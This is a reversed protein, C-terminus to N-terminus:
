RGGRVQGKRLRGAWSGAVERVMTRAGRAGAEEVRPLVVLATVLRWVFAVLFVVKYNVITWPGIQAHLHRLPEAIAGGVVPAVGAVLGVIVSYAALYISKNERPFLGLLLNFNALELGSWFAGAVFGNIVLWRWSSPEALVWPVPFFALALAAVRLVPRNGYRDLLRGWVASFLAVAVMHSVMLTLNAWLKGMRLTELAFLWLSPGAVNFGFASFVSYTIFRRFRENRFPVRLLDGLRPPEAHEHVPPEPVRTFLLVDIAGSVSAAAFLVTYPLYSDSARWLDLVLGATLASLMGVITGIRMRLGFYKGRIKLPVFDAMWSMWAPGSLNGFVSGIFILAALTWLLGGGRPLVWPLLAIPIWVLRQVVASRVFIARRRGTREVLYSSLVQALSGFMPAASLFSFFLDGAGLRRVYAAFPAGFTTNFFVSGFGWAIIILRLGYRLESETRDQAQTRARKFLRRLV